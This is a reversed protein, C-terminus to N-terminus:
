LSRSNSLTKNISFQVRVPYKNGETDKNFTYVMLPGESQDVYQMTNLVYDPDGVGCARDFALFDINNPNGLIEERSGPTYDLVETFKTLGKNYEDIMAVPNLIANYDNLNNYNMIIGAAGLQTIPNELEAESITMDASSFYEPNNTFVVTMFRQEQFNYVQIPSNKFASFEIQMLNNDNDHSEQTLMALLIRADIGWRHQARIAENMYKNRIEVVDDEQSRDEIDLDIESYHTEVPELEEVIYDEVNIDYDVADLESEVADNFLEDMNSLYDPSVVNKSQIYMNTDNNEYTTEIGIKEKEVTVTKEPKALAVSLFIAALPGAGILAGRVLTKKVKADKYKTSAYSRNTRKLKKFTKRALYKYDSTLIDRDIEININDKNGLLMVQGHKVRMAYNAKDAEKLLEVAAKERLSVEKDGDSISCKLQNKRIYFHAYYKNDM